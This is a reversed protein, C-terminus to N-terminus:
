RKLDVSFPNVARAMMHASPLSSMSPPKQQDLRKGIAFSPLVTIAIQTGNGIRGASKSVRRFSMRGELIRNGDFTAV